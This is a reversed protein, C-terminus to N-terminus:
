DKLGWQGVMEMAGEKGEALVGDRDKLAGAICRWGDRGGGWRLVEDRYLRGAREDVAGGATRQFVDRWIKGAIARDFLYAYYTAGYGVLHGFFGQWTTGAPEPISSYQGWVDRYIKTSDFSSGQELVSSSHYRQDLVSMLIQSEVEAGHM